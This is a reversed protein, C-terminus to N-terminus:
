HTDDKRLSWALRRQITGIKASTGNSPEALQKQTLEACGRPSASAFACRANAGKPRDCTAPRGLDGRTEGPRAPRAGPTRTRRARAWLLMTSSTARKSPAWDRLYM